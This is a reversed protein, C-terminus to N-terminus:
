GAEKIAREFVPLSREVMDDSATLSIRFSGPAELLSGPMVLVGDDALRATFARDDPDPSRPLLYFTAEPISLEYGFGRLAEAMRDRRQQLIRVDVSRPELNPLAHQLLATPYAWGLALQVTALAASIEAREPMAAPVAVYGLRQGPALLTKGYTYVILTRPYHMAPPIFERGDYLIRRYAEDSVLFVPGHHESAESMTAALRQLTDAPYVKGSPNHPSNVLVAKTRPTIASAVAEVDLDFSEPDMPVRVARGGATRILPEYLFHPPTVIVVEDGPDLLAHMIVALAAIAANTMAVDAPRVEVGLEGLTSAVTEQALPLNQTYAYWTPDKPMAARQLADVFWGPALETPDGARFDCADPGARDRAAQSTVFFGEVPELLGALERV